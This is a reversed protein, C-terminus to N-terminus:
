SHSGSAPASVAYPQLKPCMLGTGHREGCYACRAPDYAFHPDIGRHHRPQISGPPQVELFNALRELAKAIRQGTEESLESM